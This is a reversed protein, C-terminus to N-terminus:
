QGNINRVKLFTKEYIQEMKFQIRQNKMGNNMEKRTRPILVCSYSNNVDSPYSPFSKEREIIIEESVQKKESYILQKTQNSGM